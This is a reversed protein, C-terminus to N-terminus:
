NTHYYQSETIVFDMKVDHEDCLLFEKVQLDYCLGFKILTPLNQLFKDYFGKGYGYRGGSKSFVSGPCIVIGNVWSNNKIADHFEIQNGDIVPELIGQYGKCLEHQEDVLYFRMIDDEVKPYFVPIKNKAAYDYIFSTDVENRFSAYNLIYDAKKFESLQFLRESISRSKNIIEESTLSERISLIEKRIFNKTEMSKVLIRLRAM